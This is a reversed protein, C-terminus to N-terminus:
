MRAHKRCGGTSCTDGHARTALLPLNFGFQGNLARISSKYAGDSWGSRQPNYAEGVLSVPEGALPEVAWDAIGANTYNSGGRLWYWGAPWVQVHTNLPNPITTGPFLYRLGRMIEAEVHQIGRQATTEWFDVTRSDDDYVTRTILQDAVYPQIPIELANLAHETTWARRLPQGGATLGSWWASPWRQAVTVVKVGLLDQFQGSSKIAEAVAGTVNAFAQADIGIVLRKARVTSRPTRILYRYPKTGPSVDIVPESLRITAGAQRARDGMRKIFQSMGGVPYYPTCCVDWEEDLYDLYGRADLNEQFDARFRFVETLFHYAEPGVAARVYSRFDPFSAAQARLPGFRLEEYLAGEGAGVFPYALARADDSNDAFYGRTSMLDGQWPAAQFTIGLEDGLGFVYDQTEMVRMAGTGVVLDPRSPNLSVDYIRGGLRDRGEVLCVSLNSTQSLRYATHLGAAGGGLIAVDTSILPVAADAPSGTAMALLPASVAGAAGAQLLGRRNIQTEM